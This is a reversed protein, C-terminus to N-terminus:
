AAARERRLLRLVEDCAQALTPHSECRKGGRRRPWFQLRMYRHSAPSIEFRVAAAHCLIVLETLQASDYTALGGPITLEVMTAKWHARALTSAPVHEIGRWVCGLIDAVLTAFPPLDIGQARLHSAGPFGASFDFEPGM